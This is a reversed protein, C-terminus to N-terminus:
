RRHYTIRQMCAQPVVEKGLYSQDDLTATAQKDQQKLMMKSYQCWQVMSITCTLRLESTPNSNSKRFRALATALPNLVPTPQRQESCGTQEYETPRDSTPRAM